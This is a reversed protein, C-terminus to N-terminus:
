NASQVKLRNLTLLFEKELEDYKNQDCGKKLIVVLDMNVAQIKNKRFVERLLRKGKNRQPANGMKKSAVIGIRPKLDNKKTYVVIFSKSQLRNGNEFVYKFDKKNLLRYSKDFEYSNMM